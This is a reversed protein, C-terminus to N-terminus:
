RDGARERADPLTRSLRPPTVTVGQDRDGSEEMDDIARKAGAIAQCDRRRDDLIVALLFQLHYETTDKRSGELIFDGSSYCSM